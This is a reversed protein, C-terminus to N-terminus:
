TKTEKWDQAQEGTGIAGTARLAAIRQADFGLGALIEEGHEGAAPPQRRLRM